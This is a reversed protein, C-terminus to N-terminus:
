MCEKKLFLFCAFKLTHAAVPLGRVLLAKELTFYRILCAHLFAFHFSTRVASPLLFSYFSSRLLVHCRLALRERTERTTNVWLGAPCCRPSRPGSTASIKTTSFSSSTRRRSGHM